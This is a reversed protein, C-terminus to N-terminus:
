RDFTALDALMALYGFHQRFDDEGRGDEAKRRM